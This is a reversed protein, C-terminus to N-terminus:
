TYALLLEEMIHKLKEIGTSEHNPSLLQELEAVISRLNKEIGNLAKDQVETTDLWRILPEQNPLFSIARKFSEIEEVSAYHVIDHWITTPKENLLDEFRKDKAKESCFNGWDDLRQLVLGFRHGFKNIIDLQNTDAGSALAGLYFALATITGTKMEATKLSIEALRNADTEGAKTTLDLFQGYHALELARHFIEYALIKQTPSWTVRELLRLPWFYMWNGTCIATPVSHQRHFSPLGRRLISGDQIDDIILSGAHLCEIADKILAMNELNTGIDSSRILAAGAEVLSARFNKRPRCLYEEVPYLFESSLQNSSVPNLSKLNESTFFDPLLCGAQHPKALPASNNDALFPRVQPVFKDM